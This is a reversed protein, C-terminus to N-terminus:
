SGMRGMKGFGLGMGPPSGGGGVSPFTGNSMALLTANDLREDYYRFERVWGCLAKGVDADGMELTWGTGDHPDYTNDTAGAEGNLYHAVDDEGIGVVHRHQIFGSEPTAFGSNCNFEDGFTNFSSVALGTISNIYYGQIRALGAKFTWIGQDTTDVYTAMHDAYVTGIGTHLVESSVDVSIVDKNRTVSTGAAGANPIYSTPFDGNTSGVKELQFIDVTGAVTITVTGAGTLTFANVSGETAAGFGSGTATGASSTASGTGEIWLCYTGTPLSATTQTAPTDTVGLYQTRESEVLLGLSDGSANHDFRPANAAAVQRTGTADRYTATAGARVCSLTPGVQAVLSKDNIFDYHLALAMM